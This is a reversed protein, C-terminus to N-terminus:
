QSKRVNDGWLRMFSRALAILTGHVFQRPERVFAHSASESYLHRLSRIYITSHRHNHRKIARLIEAAYANGAVAVIGITWFIRHVM